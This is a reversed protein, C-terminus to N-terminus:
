DEIKHVVGAALLERTDPFWMEGSSTQFVKELFGSDIKQGAYFALDINQEEEASVYLSPYVADLSFQHFGLKGQPALTRTVGGIYATACASKCIHSVHTDLGQEGILRALGRGEVVRGGNSTLVITSIGTHQGLVLALQETIGIRLDGNLYLRTGDTSVRLTYDSLPSRNKLRQNVQMAEPDAFLSQVAGAVYIVTVILCIGLGLQASLVTMYSGLAKLYRDCAKILGRAQWTFVILQFVVFYLATLAIATSSQEVFPPHTVREVYLIIGRLIVVNVWFTWMLSQNGHWHRRIYDM